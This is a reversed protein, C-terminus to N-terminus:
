FAVVSQVHRSNLSFSVIQTLNLSIVPKRACLLMPFFMDKISINHVKGIMALVETMRYISFVVGFIFHITFIFLISILSQM